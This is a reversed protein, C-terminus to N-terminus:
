RMCKRGPIAVSERSEGITYCTAVIQIYDSTGTRLIKSMMYVDFSTPLVIPHSPVCLLNCVDARNYQLQQYRGEFM